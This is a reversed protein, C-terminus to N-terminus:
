NDTKEDIVGAQTLQSLMMEALKTSKIYKTKARAVFVFDYDGQIRDEIM